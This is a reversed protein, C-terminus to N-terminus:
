SASLVFSLLALGAFLATLAITAIFIVKELGRRKQYFGGGGGGFVGGADSANSQLLILIVLALSIPIQIFIIISDLSM